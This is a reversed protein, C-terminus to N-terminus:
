RRQFVTSKECVYSYTTTRNPNQWSSTLSSYNRTINKITMKMKTNNYNLHLAQSSFTNTPASCNEAVSTWVIENWSGATKINKMVLLSKVFNKVFKSNVQVLSENKLKCQDAAEDYTLPSSHFTLKMNGFYGSIDSIYKKFNTQQHKITSMNNSCSKGFFIVLTVFVLLPGELM